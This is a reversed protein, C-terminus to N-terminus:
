SVLKHKAINDRISAAKEYDEEAVAILLERELNIGTETHKDDHKIELTEDLLISLWASLYKVVNEKKSYYNKPYTSIEYEEYVPVEAKKTFGVTGWFGKCPVIQMETGVQKKKVETVKQIGSLELIAPNELYELHVMDARTMGCSELRKIIEPLKEGTLPCGVQIANKWTKDLGEKGDKKREKNIASLKTFLPQRLEELETADVNLVAQAVIGMNCSCQEVWDYHITGNQLAGIATRLAGILKQKNNM